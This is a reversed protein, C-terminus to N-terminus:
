IELVRQAVKGHKFFEIVKNQSFDFRVRKNAGDEAIEPEAEKKAQKVKKKKKKPIVANIELMEDEGGTSTPLEKRVRKGGLKNFEKIDRWEQEDKEEIEGDKNEEVNDQGKEQEQM